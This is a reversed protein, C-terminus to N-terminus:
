LALFVSKGVAEVRWRATGGLLTAPKRPARPFPSVITTLKKKNELERATAVRQALEAREAASERRRRATHARAIHGAAQKFTLWRDMASAAALHEWNRGSCTALCRLEARIDDIFAADALADLPLRWRPAGAAAAPGDAALVAEVGCHDGPLDGLPLHRCSVLRGPALLSPTAYVRDLRRASTGSTAWYTFPGDGAAARGGRALHTQWVDSLGAGALCGRLATAGRATAESAATPATSDDTSLICNFDGAAIIHAGPPGAALALALPGDDRFFAAREGDDNPAYVSVVSWHQGTAADLWGVRLVRGSSAAGAGGSDPSPCDTFEIHADAGALGPGLLVAVGRSGRTGHAWFARGGWPRGAGAGDRLWAMATADDPAHTEQLAVVDCRLAALRAFLARRKRTQSLGNINHSVLAYRRALGRPASGGM